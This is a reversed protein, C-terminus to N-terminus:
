FYRALAFRFRLRQTSYFGISSDNRAYTASVEPSFGWLRITRLGLTARTNLRWDKRPDPSFFQIPADYVARSVSGSLGFTLGHRFEGGFGFTGGLETSSYAQEDLWDRRALGGLSLVLAKSLAHEYTGYLAGQVGSYGPGFKADTRRLDLQVGARDARGFNMQGGLKGGVQRTAVNGGYWRQAGVAQISVSARQSLRLEPGAAAQAFYDDYASGSYNAGSGDLDVLMSAKPSLPLRLGTSLTATLGTGSKAKADDNLTLPLNYGGLNVNVQEVATANNINTDPALGFDVDFRWARQQRIVARVGRVLKAVDPPLDQDQQALRFQKDASQPKGLIMMVKALELRVRTQNPDDALIAEYQSAAKAYDGQEAAIYGTLFRTQMTYGPALKLAEILPKAEDFRGMAILKEAAALMQDPTLKVECVGDVCQKSIQQAHAPAGLGILFLAAVTLIIRV